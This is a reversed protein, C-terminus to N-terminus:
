LNWWTISIPVEKPKLPPSLLNPAICCFQFRLPFIDITPLPQRPHAFVNCYHTTIQRRSPLQQVHLISADAQPSCAPSTQYLLQGLKKNGMGLLYASTKAGPRQRTVLQIEHGLIQVNKTENRQTRISVFDLQWNEITDTTTSTRFCSFNTLNPSNNKQHSFTRRNQGRRSVYLCAQPNQM